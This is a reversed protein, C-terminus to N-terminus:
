YDANQRADWLIKQRESDNPEAKLRDIVDKPYGLDKAIEVDIRVRTKLPFKRAM